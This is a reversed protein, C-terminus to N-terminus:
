SCWRAATRCRGMALRRTSSSSTPVVQGSGPVVFDANITSLQFAGFTGKLFYLGGETGVYLGDDVAMVLTINHEFQIFGRTRNVIHYRYLETVWLTKGDALYIRGKYARHRERPDSRRHARRCGPGADVNRRDGAVAV